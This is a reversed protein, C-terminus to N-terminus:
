SLRAKQEELEVELERIAYLVTFLEHCADNIFRALAIQQDPSKDEVHEKRIERLHTLRCELLMHRENLKNLQEQKHIVDTM